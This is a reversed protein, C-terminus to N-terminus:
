PPVPPMFRRRGVVLYPSNTNTAVLRGGSVASRFAVRGAGAVGAARGGGSRAGIAALAFRGAEAPRASRRGASSSRSRRSRRGLSAPGAGLVAAGLGAGDHAPGRRAGGGSSGARGAAGGGRDGCRGDRGCGAPLGARVGAAACPEGRLRACRVRCSSGGADARRASQRRYGSWFVMPGGCSPCEPRPFEVRRGAAAYADVSLPCPWVIAM